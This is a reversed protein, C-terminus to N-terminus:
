IVFEQKENAILKIQKYLEPRYEDFMSPLTNFFHNQNYELIPIMQKHIDNIKELSWNGIELILHMIAELRQNDRLSDYSEDWFNSFTKFGLEQLIKLGNHSSDLIFPHGQAISRFTKESLYPFNEKYYTEVIISCFTDRYLFQEGDSYDNIGSQFSHGPINFPIREHIKDFDLNRLYWPKGDTTILNDIDTLCTLGPATRNFNGLYSFYSKELLSFKNFFYFLSQRHQDARNNLSLFNYKKDTSFDIKKNTFTNQWYVKFLPNYILTFYDRYANKIGPDFDHVSLIIYYNKLKGTEEKHVKSNCLVEEIFNQTLYDGIVFLVVIKGTVTNFQDLLTDHFNHIFVFEVNKNNVYEPLGPLM